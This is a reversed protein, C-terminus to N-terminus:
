RAALADGPETIVEATTVEPAAVTSGWDSLLECVATHFEEDRVGRPMLLFADYKGTVLGPRLAEAEVLFDEWHAAVLRRATPVVERLRHLAVLVPADPLRAETVFLAVPQREGVLREALAEAEAATGVAFLEYDRVYRGFEDRLFDARNESVLIIAPHQPV